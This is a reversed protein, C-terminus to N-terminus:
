ATTDSMFVSSTTAPSVSVAYEEAQPCVRFSEPNPWPIHWFQAVVIDPRRDKIMKPLLAFHYDQIFVFGQDGGIEEIVADAFKENVRAISRGSDAERFSPASTSSTAYPAM